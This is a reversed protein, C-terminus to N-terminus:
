RRVRRIFAAAAALALLAAWPASSSDQRPRIACGCGEPPTPVTLDGEGPSQGSRGGTGGDRGDPGRDSEGGTAGSDEGSSSGPEVCAGDVCNQGDPCPKEPCGPAPADKERCQNNICIENSKCQVAGCVKAPDEVTVCDGTSKDCVAGDGCTVGSCPDGVLERSICQGERCAQGAPCSIVNCPDEVCSGDQCVTGGNCSVAACASTECKGERCIEGAKCAVGDCPNPVCQGDTCKQGFECSVNACSDVCTGARCAKRGCDVGACPDPECKGGICKQGDVCGSVACDEAVCKGEQCRQGGPCNVGECLNRCASKLPDCTEGPACNVGDCNSICYKSSNVEKCQFGGPCEGSSCRAVCKGNLCTLRADPCKANDDIEGDCDNDKGDCVEEPNPACFGCSNAVGNDVVGDCDDDLGNCVERTPEKEANCELKGGRCVQKGRSCVGKLGSACVAGGQPNGEDTSGDCDNDLGDCIEPAPQSTPECVEIGSLCAIRGKGCVGLQSSRCEGKPPINDDVAGNCDNDLGDCAEPQPQPATCNAYKGGDCTEFGKGCQSACERRLGNDIQGDCDNDKGDCTEAQPQRTAQCKVSVGDCVLTGQACEGKAGQVACSGGTGVGNDVRGDCDNDKGDCVEAQPQPATCGAWRGNSCAETGNGCRTSCARPALGEDIQGDCDDDVGNCEEQQVQNIINTLAQALETRNNAQYYRPNGARATGGRDALRNLITADVDKGFGVVFTKIDYKVGSVTVNRLADVEASPDPAKGDTIFLVFSRRPKVPDPPLIKTTYETRAQRLGRIMDTGGGPGSSSLSSRVAGATNPACLVKTSVASDFLILGWRVTPGANLATDVAAVADNWKNSDGMSGSKDLVIMMNPAECAAQARAEGQFATLAAAFSVAFVLIPNGWKM